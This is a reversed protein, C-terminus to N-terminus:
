ISDPPLVGRSLMGSSTCFMMSIAGVVCKTSNLWAIKYRPAPMATTHFGNRARSTIPVARNEKASARKLFVMLWIAYNRIRHRFGVPAAIQLYVDAFLIAMVFLVAAGKEVPPRGDRPM